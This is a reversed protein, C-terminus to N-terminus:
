FPCDIADRMPEDSGAVGECPEVLAQVGRAEEGAVRLCLKEIDSPLLENGRPADPMMPPSRGRMDKRAASPDARAPPLEEARTERASERSGSWSGLRLPALGM